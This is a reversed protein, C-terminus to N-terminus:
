TEYLVCFCSESQDVLNVFATEIAQILELVDPYEEDEVDAEVLVVVLLRV